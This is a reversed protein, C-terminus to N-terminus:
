GQAVVDILDFSNVTFMFHKSIPPLFHSFPNIVWMLRLCSINQFAFDNLRLNKRSNILRLCSINQFLMWFNTETEKFENVTFM